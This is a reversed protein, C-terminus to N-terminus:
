KNKRFPLLIIDIFINFVTVTTNCVSPHRPFCVKLSGPALFTGSHCISALRGPLSYEAINHFLYELCNEWLLSLGNSVLWM